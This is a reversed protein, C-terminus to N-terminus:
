ASWPRSAAGLLVADPRPCGAAPRDSLGGVPDAHAEHGFPDPATRGRGNRVAGAYRDTPMAPAFTFFLQGAFAFGTAWAAGLLACCYPPLDSFAALLGLFLLYNQSQALLAILLYRVSEAFRGRSSPAFTYRRDLRWAVATATVLSLGRATAPSLGCACLGMFAASDVSLGIVGVANFRVFRAALAVVQGPLRPRLAPGSAPQRAVFGPWAFALWAGNM